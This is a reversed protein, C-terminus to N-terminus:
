RGSRGAIVFAIGSYALAILASTIESGLYAVPSTVVRPIHLVIVWTLIMMGLLTAALRVKIKLIIAVGSAFLGAGALYAWFLRWPVWSPVYEAVGEAMQFHLIGYYIIPVSFLYIGLPVLKGIANIVPSENTAPFLGAIVFAGGCLTLEKLANEWGRLQAYSTTAIFGYPVFYFCFISLLVVGLVLSAPRTQKKLVICAGALVFLIGFAISVLALGPIWSHKYPILMYPFDRYIIMLLGLGAIAIGYFIRGADALNKLNVPNLQIFIYSKAHDADGQTAAQAVALAKAVRPRRLM